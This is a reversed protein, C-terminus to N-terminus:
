SWCKSEQDKKSTHGGNHSRRQSTSYKIGSLAIVNREVHSSSSQNQWTQDAKSSLHHLSRTLSSSFVFRRGLFGISSNLFWYNHIQFIIFHIYLTSVHLMQKWTYTLYLSIDMYHYFEAWICILRLPTQMICKQLWKM